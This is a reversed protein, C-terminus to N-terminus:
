SNRRGGANLTNNIGMLGKLIDNWFPAGLSVLLGMLLLGPVESYPHNRFDEGFKSTRILIPYHELAKQIQDRSQSYATNLDSQQPTDSGSRAAQDASVTRASGVIAQQAAQDSSILEYLILLNANLLAVVLLSLIITIVKNKKAYAQQFSARAAEYSAAINDKVQEVTAQASAVVGKLQADELEIGDLLHRFDAKNLNELATLDFGRLTLANRVQPLTLHDGMFKEVTEEMVGAKTDLLTKIFEQIAQVIVSLVFILLVLSVLTQFTSMKADEKLRPHLSKGKHLGPIEATSRNGNL